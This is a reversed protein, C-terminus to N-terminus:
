GGCFPDQQPTEPSGVTIRALAIVPILALMVMVARM